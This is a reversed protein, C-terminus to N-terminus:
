GREGKREGRPSIHRRRTSPTLPAPQQSTCLAPGPCARASQGGGVIGTFHTGASLGLWLRCWVFVTVLDVSTVKLAHNLDFTKRGELALFLLPGARPPHIPGRGAANYPFTGCLELKKCMINDRYVHPIGHTPNQQDSGTGRRHLTRSQPVSM